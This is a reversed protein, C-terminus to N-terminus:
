KPEPGISQSHINEAVGVVFTCPMTDAWIRMCRGVPDLGPWLVAAMSEGIVAVRRAGEIDTSEFGRGRMIRTGMTAFYDPSVTNADFRGLKDVSDIGTVFISWSSAGYFPTSEQLTAHSVGPEGQASALLRLRLAVTAASDLKVDRMNTSVLLVSD